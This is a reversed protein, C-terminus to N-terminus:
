GRLKKRPRKLYKFYFGAVISIFTALGVIIGICLSIIRLWLEVSDLSGVYAAGLPISSGFLGKALIETHTRIFEFM